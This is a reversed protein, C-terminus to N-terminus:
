NGHALGAELAGIPGSGRAAPAGDMTAIAILLLVIASGLYAAVATGRRGLPLWASLRLLGDQELRSEWDEAVTRSM